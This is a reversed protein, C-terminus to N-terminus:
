RLSGRDRKEFKHYYIDQAYEFAGVQNSGKLIKTFTANWGPSPYDMM